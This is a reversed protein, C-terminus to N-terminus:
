PKKKRAEYEKRLSARDHLEERTPKRQGPDSFHVLKRAFWSRMAREYDDTGRIQARLVEGVYRSLSMNQEAAKVKARAATDDDLSITVNKM